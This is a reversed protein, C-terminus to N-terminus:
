PRHGRQVTEARIDQLPYIDTRINAARAQRICNWTGRSGTDPFALCRQAGRAVMQGNRIPGAADGHGQWDAPHAEAQVRPWREDAGIAAAVQDVGTPCDGHVLIVDRGVLQVTITDYVYWRQPSSLQHRTGTVIIRVVEAM